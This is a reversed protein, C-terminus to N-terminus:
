AAASCAIPGAAILSPWASAVRGSRTPSAAAAFRRWSWSESGGLGEGRDLARDLLRELGRDLGQEAADVFDGDAGGRDRLDVAGDRDLAAVDRDLHKARADLFFEGGRELGVFPGRPVDFQEAAAFGHAEARPEDDRVEPLPGIALEVELALGGRGGLELVLHDGLGAEVDGLDVPAAGRAAHHREFPEVPDLEAVAVAQDGRPM